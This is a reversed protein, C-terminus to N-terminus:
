ANTQHKTHRHPRVKRKFSVKKPIETSFKRDKACFACDKSHTLKLISKIDDESSMNLSITSITPKIKVKLEGNEVTATQQVPTPFRHLFRATRVVKAFLYVGNVLLCLDTICYTVLASHYSVTDCEEGIFYNYNININYITLTFIIAFM